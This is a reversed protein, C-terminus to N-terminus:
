ILKNYNQNADIDTQQLEPQGRHWNTTTRTPRWTLKNHNQNDEIIYLKIVYKISRTSQVYDSQRQNHLALTHTSQLSSSWVHYERFLLVLPTWRMFEDYYINDPFIPGLIGSKNLSMKFSINLIDLSLLTNNNQDNNVYYYYFHRSYCLIYYLCCIILFIYGGWFLLMM